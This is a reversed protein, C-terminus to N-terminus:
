FLYGWKNKFADNREKIERKNEEFKKTATELEIQPGHVKYYAADYAQQNFRLKMSDIDSQFDLTFQPNVQCNFDGFGTDSLTYQGVFKKKSDFVSYVLIHEKKPLLYLEKDVKSLLAQFLLFNSLINKKDTFKKNIKFKDIERYPLKLDPYESVTVEGYTSNNNTENWIYSGNDRFEFSEQNNKSIINIIGADFQIKNIIYYKGEAPVEKTIKNFKIM